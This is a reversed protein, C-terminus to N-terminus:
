LLVSVKIYTGLSLSGDVTTGPIGNPYAIPESLCMGVKVGSTDVATFNGAAMASLYVPLGVVYDNGMGEADYKTTLFVGSGSYVSMQGSASTENFMDSIRNVTRATDGNANIVVDAAYGLSTAGGFSVENLAVTDGAIGIPQAAPSDSGDALTIKAAGTTGDETVGLLSGAEPYANASFDAKSVKVNQIITYHIPVIM